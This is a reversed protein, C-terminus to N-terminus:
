KFCRRVWLKSKETLQYARPIMYIYFFVFTLGTYTVTHDILCNRLFSQFESNCEQKRALEEFIQDTWVWMITLFTKLSPIWCADFWKVYTFIDETIIQGIFVHLEKLIMISKLDRDTTLVNVCFGRNNSIVSLKQIILQDKLDYLNIRTQIRNLRVVM